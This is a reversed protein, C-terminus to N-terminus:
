ILSLLPNHNGIIGSQKMLEPIEASANGNIGSKSAARQQLTLGACGSM